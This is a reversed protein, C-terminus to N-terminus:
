TGEVLSPRELTLDVLSLYSLQIAQELDVPLNLILELSCCPAHQIQGLDGRVRVEADHIQLLPHRLCPLFHLTELSVAEARGFVPPAAAAAAARSAARAGANRRLWGGRRVDLHGRRWRRLGPWPRGRRRM